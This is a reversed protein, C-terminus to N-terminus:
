LNANVSNFLNAANAGVLAVIAVCVAAILSALIAYEVITAGDERFLARLLRAM